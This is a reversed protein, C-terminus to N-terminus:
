KQNQAAQNTTSPHKCNDPIKNNAEIKYLEGPLDNLGVEYRKMASEDGVSM